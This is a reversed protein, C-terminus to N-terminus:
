ARKRKRFLEPLKLNVSKTGLEPVSRGTVQLAVARYIDNIRNNAAIEAIMQGNNAATGFIAADFPIQGLLRCEISSAFENASIEPRRPVGLKNIVLLPATESPRLAKITDALNKANRLNALDPEAVIVIEDITGLTYRIWADWAHPIDLIVVPTTRQSLEIVQEFDREGHDYTQELSVPATLLNIHNAAKSMLRDLMVQDMKQSANVADALGHPPDQNFNLGATGFALDMDLILVDQRLNQSVAWAVNHAVTSGGAGGKASVFGITRGIPAAGEGAFLETIATVITQASAPLVIYESVGSRILERYLVVDNAHGLVILRTTADCVEALRALANPIEAPPLSTEVLILNPTPNAKYTEIAGDLGGNHTTLAVKSMRRDHIASEVLQATQSHECFAQITIRPILRAGAAIEAAEDTGGSDRSLFSM